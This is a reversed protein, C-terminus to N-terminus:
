RKEVGLNWVRYLKHSGVKYVIALDITGAPQCSRGTVM